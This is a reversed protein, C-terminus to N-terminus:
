RGPQPAGDMKENLYNLLEKRWPSGEPGFIGMHRGKPVAWFKKDRGPYAQFLERGAEIPVTEDSEGHVALLPVGALGPLAQEPSLHDSFFLYAVPYQFPWLFWTDNMILRVVERYSAFTGELILARVGKTGAKALASVALAGGLSQGYVILRAPDVGKRGRLYKIAAAGDEVAGERFPSGDSAGYGRYDFLFVSYGAHPLWRVAFLHNSINAANGHFHIITGRVPARAPLFWGTLLTGDRSRFDVEEHLLDFQDPTYYLFRDPQFFM